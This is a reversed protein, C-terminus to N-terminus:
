KICSDNGFWLYCIGDWWRAMGGGLGEDVWVERELLIDDGLCLIDCLMVFM